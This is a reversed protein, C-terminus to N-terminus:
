FIWYRFWIAVPNTLIYYESTLIPLTVLPFTNLALLPQLYLKNKPICTLIAQWVIYFIESLSWNM